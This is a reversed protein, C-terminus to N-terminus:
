THLLLQCVIARSGSGAGEKKQLYLKIPVGLKNVVGMQKYIPLIVRLNLINAIRGNCFFFLRSVNSAHCQKKGVELLWGLLANFSYRQFEALTNFRTVCSLPWIM